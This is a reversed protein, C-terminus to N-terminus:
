RFKLGFEKLAQDWYYKRDPNKDSIGKLRNATKGKAMQRRILIDEAGRIADRNTSSLLIKHKPGLDNNKHHNANRRRANLTAGDLGSTRGAYGNKKLYLEYTKAHTLTKGNAKFSRDAGKGNPYVNWGPFAKNLTLKNATVRGPKSFSGMARSTITPKNASFSRFSGGRFGGRQAETEPQFILIAVAVLFYYLPKM